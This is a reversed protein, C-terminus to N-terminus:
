AMAVLTSAPGCEGIFIPPARDRAHGDNEIDELPIDTFPLTESVNSHHPEKLVEAVLANHSELHTPIM